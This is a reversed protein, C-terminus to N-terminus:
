QKISTVQLLESPWVLSINRKCLRFSNLVVNASIHKNVDFFSHYVQHGDIAGLSSLYFYPVLISFVRASFNSTSIKLNKTVEQMNTANLRCDSLENLNTLSM